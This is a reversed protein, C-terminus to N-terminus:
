FSESWTGPEQVLVANAQAASALNCSHYGYRKTGNLVNGLDNSAVTQGLLANLGTMLAGNLTGQGNDTVGGGVMVLGDWSWDGGFTANNQVILVGRGTMGSTLDADGSIYIVPWETSPLTSFDPFADPPVNYTHPIRGGNLISQWQSATIVGDYPSSNQKIAPNGTVMKASGSWGGPPLVVGAKTGEVGCGDTGDISGSTGNKTIDQASTMAGPPVPLLSFDLFAVTHVTRSTGSSTTGTSRLEWMSGPKGLDVIETPTVTASGRAGFSYTTAGTPIGRHTGLYQNLGADAVSLAGVVEDYNTATKRESNAMLFGGTALATLGVLALLAVLLAFGGESRVREVSERGSPAGARPRLAPRQRFRSPRHM